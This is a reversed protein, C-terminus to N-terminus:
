SNISAVCLTKADGTPAFATVTRLSSDNLFRNWYMACQRRHSVIAITPIGLPRTENTGLKPIHVRKIAQPRYDGSRLQQELKDLNRTLVATFDEITVHDVGPAGKNVAVERYASYLNEPKYVKDILSHWKGGRVNNHELTALM